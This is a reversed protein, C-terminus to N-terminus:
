AEEGAACDWGCAAYGALDMWSDLKGPSWRIRSVKLLAMMAAVDHPQVDAGLYAAWMDATRRFDARPDGYQVNRDGNVLEEAGLLVTARHNREALLQDMDIPNINPLMTGSFEAVIEVPELDPYSVVPLGLMAAIRAENTAGTSREWGPLVVVADVQLLAAIDNRAFRLRLDRSLPETGTCGTESFGDDRDMEAPSIVLWGRSRLDRSAEDFAPFNFETIGTMPGAVYVKDTTLTM